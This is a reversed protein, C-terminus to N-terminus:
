HQMYIKKDITNKDKTNRSNKDITNRSNVKQLNNIVNLDVHNKYHM